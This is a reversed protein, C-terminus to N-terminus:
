ERDQGTGAYIGGFVPKGVGGESSFTLHRVVLNPVIGVDGWRVKKGVIVEPDEWTHCAASIAASCSGAATIESALPRYGMGIAALLALIGLTLAFIIAICSYGITSITAPTPRELPDRIEVRALFISQSALWHLLGSLVMLPIAYNYPMQLWYTSCQGPRPSTVRLTRHHHGFLSWEHGLLMCTFLSHYTLYLFSLITQPVNALLIAMTINKFSIGVLSVSNVKGFGRTWMSKIDNSWYRGDKGMGSALSVGAAMIAVSCLANCTIWRTKSVSTWWKQVGMKRWQRPRTRWGCGWERKVFQRDAFCIAATTPDPIRLFSDVADGLTVLTPERSRVVTIIMCCAKAINCCIVVIMIRLSFQVKCKEETKESKCGSIEVEGGRRLQLLWPLGNTVNSVLDSPNCTPGDQYYTEGSAVGHYDCMWRGPSIGNVGVQFTDLLTTNHMANDSQKTILFLNRHSSIFETNYLKTCRRPTLDDYNQASTNYEELVIRLQHFKQSMDGTWNTINYNERYMSFLDETMNSSAGSEFHNNTVITVFFENAALSTYIASNYLLHLPISTIGIAIWLFVRELKIGFLNRVSPVGIDM